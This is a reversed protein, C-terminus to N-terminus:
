RTMLNGRARGRKKMSFRRGFKWLRHFNLGAMWLLNPQFMSVLPFIFFVYSDCRCTCRLAPRNKTECFGFNATLLRIVTNQREVHIRKTACISSYFKIPAVYADRAHSIIHTKVSMSLHFPRLNSLNIRLPEAKLHM